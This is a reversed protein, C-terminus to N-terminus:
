RLYGGAPLFANKQFRLSSGEMHDLSVIWCGVGSHQAEGRGLNALGWIVLNGTAAPIGLM